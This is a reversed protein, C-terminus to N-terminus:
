FDIAGILRKANPIIQERAKKVVAESIKPDQNKNVAPTIAYKIGAYGMIVNKIRELEEDSRGPFNAKIMDNYLKEAADADVGFLQKVYAKAMIHTLAIGAYDFILHGYTLDAMDIFLLEGDQVMINKPHIDGHVFKNSDPISNIVEHLTALEDPTYVGELDDVWKNYLDKINGFINKDAETEHISTWSKPSPVYGTQFLIQM